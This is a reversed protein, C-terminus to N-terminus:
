DLVMGERSWRCSILIKYTIWNKESKLKGKVNTSLYIVMNSSTTGHGAGSVLHVCGTIFGVKEFSISSGCLLDRKIYLGSSSIRTCEVVWASGRSPPSNTRLGAALVKLWACFGRVERSSRGSSICSHMM